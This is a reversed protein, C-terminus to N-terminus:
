SALQEFRCQPDPILGRWPSGGRRWVAIFGVVRLYQPRRYSNLATNTFRLASEQGTKRGCM